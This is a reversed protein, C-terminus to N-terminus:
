SQKGPYFGARSSLGTYHGRGAYEMYL